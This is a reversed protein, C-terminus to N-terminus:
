NLKRSSCLTFVLLELQQSLKQPRLPDRHKKSGSNYPRVTEYAKHNPDTGVCKQKRNISLQSGSEREKHEVRLGFYVVRKTNVCSFLIWGFRFFM